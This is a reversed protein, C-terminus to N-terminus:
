KVHVTLFGSGVAFLFHERQPLTSMETEASGEASGLVEPSTLMASSAASSM